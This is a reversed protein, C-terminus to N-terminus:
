IMPLLISFTVGKEKNPRLLVEGGHADVIKKVIALGLGTGGKKKSVFPQFINKMNECSIGCGHDMIELVVKRHSHRTSIWVEGSPPSAQIANAILNLLAQKMYSPELSLPPLSPDLKDYLAVSSQNAMVEAVELTELILRNFNTRSKELDLPRGFDMMGKVMAELRATEQIVIQLKKRGIDVSELGSCVQQAFGGIAILPTKMDHAVESLARGMAALNESRILEQHRQREKQALYGLVLAIFVFLLSELIRNFDNVTGQWQVIVYPVYLLCVAVSVFVAGKLGFWFSALVLPLYFLMRYVAHHLMKDHITFYHLGAIGVILFVVLWLKLFDEKVAMGGAPLAGNNKM